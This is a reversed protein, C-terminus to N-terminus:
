FCPVWASLYRFDAGFGVGVFWFLDSIVLLCLTSTQEKCQVFATYKIGNIWIADTGLAGGLAVARHQLVMCVWPAGSRALVQIKLHCGNIDSNM